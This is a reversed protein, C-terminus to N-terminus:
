PVLRLIRGQDNDTLVYVAGDPGVRVDRIREGVDTLLREEGVIRDDQVVLRALHQGRLGGVLFNGKWAPFLSGDYWALGSPAIVPDWYYVPQELGAEQTIGAGIPAGSYDIGYSIVPWGYNKGAEIRNLEDGGRAGHEVEWLQGSGDLTLGQPNRHGLSWVEGRAGPVGVMPNDGPVGGDTTIRVVKGLARAPDQAQDRLGFRDGFSVLLRGTRDFLLRSGLNASTSAPEARYLVRGELAVPKPLRDDLRGRFVSVGFGGSRPEAFTLYFRHNSSFEPDVAVDLLGAQGSVVVEPVGAVPASLTGDAAVIRLRGPRETVLARGDPLFALGWPSVLGRAFVQVQYKSAPVVGPARTQGPFAPGQNRAEPPRREVPPPTQAGLGAISGLTLLLVIWQANM